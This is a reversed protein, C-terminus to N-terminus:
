ILENLKKVFYKAYLKQRYRNSQIKKVWSIGMSNTLFVEDAHLISEKDLIIEKIEQNISMILSRMSGSVCGESLNSTYIIDEKVIFINSSTAEIPKDDTNFIIADDYQNNRAYNAALVSILSNLTKISSIPTKSKYEHCYWAVDLGDLNLFFRDEKLKNATMLVSCNNSASLYRGESERFFIIKLYGSSRINNVELLGQIHKLIIEKDLNFDLSLLELSRKIRQYHSNFNFPKRNFIRISEFFGDGYFFGRNKVSLKLQNASVIRNNLYVYQM